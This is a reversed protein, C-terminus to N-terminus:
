RVPCFPEEELRGVWAPRGLRAVDPAPGIIELLERASKGLEPHRAEPAIENLPVLVFGREHMRPHPVRLGPLDLIRDGWLLLDLDVTRPGGSIERTRGMVREIELLFRLFQAPDLGTECCLVGNVFDPQTTLGVPASRYFSSIRAIRTSPLRAISEFARRFNEEVTGVNGGFAVFVAPMGVPARLETRDRPMRMWGELCFPTGARLPEGREPDSVTDTRLTPRLGNSRDTVSPTSV